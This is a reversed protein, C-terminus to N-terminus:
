RVEGQQWDGCVTYRDIKPWVGNNWSDRKTDAVPGHLRCEHPYSHHLPFAFKCTGCCPPTAEFEDRHRKIHMAIAFQEGNRDVWGGHSPSGRENLAALDM